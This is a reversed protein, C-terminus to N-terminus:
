GSVTESKRLLGISFVHTAGWQPLRLDDAFPGDLLPSAWREELGSKGNGTSHELLLARRRLIMQFSIWLGGAQAVPHLAHQLLAVVSGGAELGIGNVVQADGQPSTHNM